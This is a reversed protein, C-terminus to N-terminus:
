NVKLILYRSIDQRTMAKKADEKELPVYSTTRRDKLDRYQFSFIPKRKGEWTGSGVRFNLNEKEDFCIHGIPHLDASSSVSDLERIRKLTEPGEMMKKAEEIDEKTPESM